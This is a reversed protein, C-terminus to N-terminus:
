VADIRGWTGAKNGKAKGYEKSYKLARRPEFASGFVVRHPWFSTAFLGIGGATLPQYRVAV